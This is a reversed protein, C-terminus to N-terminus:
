FISLSTQSFAFKLQPVLYRLAELPINNLLTVNTYIITAVRSCSQIGPDPTEAQLQTDYAVSLLRHEVALTKVTM